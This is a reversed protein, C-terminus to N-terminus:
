YAKQGSRNGPPDYDCVWYEWSDGRFPSNKTCTAKACGVATTSSWVIQTYHGCVKGPACAGTAPDYDAKEAAWSGVVASPTSSSTSAYINEGYGERDANHGWNCAEAYRKAVAAAEASWQLPATGVEARVQNHLAVIGELAPDSPEAAPAPTRVAGGTGSAESTESAGSCAALACLSIACISFRVISVM